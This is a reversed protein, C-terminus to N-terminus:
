NNSEFNNLFSNVKEQVFLREKSLIKNMNKTDTNNNSINKTTPENNATITENNKNASENEKFTKNTTKTTNFINSDTLEIKDKELKLASKLKEPINPLQIQVYLNVEENKKKNEFVYKYLYFNQLYNDSFFNVIDIIESKKFIKYNNENDDDRFITYIKLLEKFVYVDNAKSKLIKNSNNNISTALLAKNKNIKFDDTNNIINEYNNFNYSKNNNRLLAYFINMIIILKNDDTKFLESLYVYHIYLFESILMIEIKEFNNRVDEKIFYLVVLDDIIDKPKNSSRLVEIFEQDIILKLGSTLQKFPSSIDIKSFLPNSIIAESDYQNSITSCFSGNGYLNM